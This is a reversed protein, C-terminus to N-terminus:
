ARPREAGPRAPLGELAVLSSGKLTNALLQRLSLM